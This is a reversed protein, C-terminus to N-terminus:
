FSLNQYPEQPVIESPVGMPKIVTFILLISILVLFTPTLFKGVIDLINNPKLAFYLALGFFILSYVLLYLSFHDSLFPRIGVEFAVTATRPVAFFPGITLLLALPFFLSFFKGGPSSYERLN